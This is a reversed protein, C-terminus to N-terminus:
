PTLQFPIFVRKPLQLNPLFEDSFHTEDNWSVVAQADVPANSHSAMTTARDRFPSNVQESSQFSSFALGSTGGSTFSQKILIFLGTTLERWAMAGDSELALAGCPKCRHM